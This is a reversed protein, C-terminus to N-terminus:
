HFNRGKPMVAVPERANGMERPDRALPRRVEDARALSSLNAGQASLQGLMPSLDQLSEAVIHIVGAENQVRGTVAVFRTGIVIARNAEFVDPWVIINAVGAEDELTMFVVGRASGPRQRVLV